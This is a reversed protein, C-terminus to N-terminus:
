EPDEHQAVGTGLRIHGERRANREYWFGELLFSGHCLMGALFGVADNHFALIGAVTMFMVVWRRRRQEDSLDGIGMGEEGEGLGGTDAASRDLRSLDRAGATNLSEGVEVLELGAAILLICLLTNLFGNFIYFAVDSAFLGM